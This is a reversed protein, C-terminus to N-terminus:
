KPSRLRQRIKALGQLNLRLSEEADLEPRHDLIGIPGEYGSDLVAQLMRLEHQGDGIPLIKPKAGDNMGNLNLCILHPKMLEILRSFDAIHDHGHHFNYVIGVHDHGQRKLRECVAVMNIPEGGWGGHNYLGLQCGLERTQRVKPLLREAASAVKALRTDGSVEPCMIWFQPHINHKRVLPVIDPHWSWFAFYELGRQKYQLIEQEFDPVDKERWDYAIRRIGLRSVMEARDAPGRRRADFPVICWAVLNDKDLLAAVRRSQRQQRGKNRGGDPKVPKPGDSGIVPPEHFVTLQDNQKRLWDDLDARLAALPEVNGYDDSYFRVINPLDAAPIQGVDFACPTLGCCVLRFWMQRFM